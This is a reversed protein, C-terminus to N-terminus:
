IVSSVSAGLVKRVGVERVRQVAMFSVLGYLGLCSLFIAIVAFVKYLLSLQYEQKYFNEVKEDLFKFEFAFDPYINNWIKEVARIAPAADRTTLKIGAVSYWNKTTTMLLPAVPARFSRNHFDKLVGVIKGKLQ